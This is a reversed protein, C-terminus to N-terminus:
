VKVIRRAISRFYKKEQDKSDAWFSYQNESDGDCVIMGILYVFDDEPVGELDLYIRVTGSPVKPEGLVYITRDRIAMAQLAHYRRKGGRDSQKGKRRPRFTRALQTLTFV